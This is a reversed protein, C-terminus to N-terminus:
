IGAINKLVDFLYKHNTQCPHRHHHVSYILFYIIFSFSQVALSQSMNSEQWVKWCMLRLSSSHFHDCHWHHYCTLNRCHLQYLAICHWHHHCALNRGCPALQEKRGFDLRVKWLSWCCQRANIKIIFIVITIISVAITFNVLHNRM